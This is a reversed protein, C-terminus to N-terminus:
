NVVRKKILNGKERLETVKESKPDIGSKILEGVAKGVQNGEAQLKNREQEHSRQQDALNKIQSIDVNLGRRKLREEILNPEERVLRQDLM